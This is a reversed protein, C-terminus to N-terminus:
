LRSNKIFTATVPNTIGYYLIATSWCLSALIAHINYLFKM